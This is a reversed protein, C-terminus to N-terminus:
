WRAPSHMGHGGKEFEASMYLKSRQARTGTGFTPTAARAITSNPQAQGISAPLKYAAHPGPSLNVSDPARSRSALSYEPPNAMRDRACVRAFAGLFLRATLSLAYLLAQAPRASKPQGDKHESVSVPCTM